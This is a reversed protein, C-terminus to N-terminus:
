SAELVPCEAYNGVRDINWQQHEKWNGCPAVFAAGPDAARAEARTDFFPTTRIKVFENGSYAAFKM